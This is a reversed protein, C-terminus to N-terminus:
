KNQATKVVNLLEEMMADLKEHDNQIAANKICNNIHGEILQLNASRLLGIVALNQQIIDICYRDDDLMKLIKVILSNAKKLAIQVKEKNHAM